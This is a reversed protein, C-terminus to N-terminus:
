HFVVNKLTRREDRTAVLTFTGIGMEEKHLYIGQASIMESRMLKGDASFVQLEAPEGYTKVEISDASVLPHARFDVDLVGTTALAAHVEPNYVRLIKDDNERVKGWGTIEKNSTCLFVSGDPAVLVDRLRGFQKWFANHEGLVEKGDESLPIVKLRQEKLVGMLLCNKWEPIATHNYYDLGAVAETPTWAWIPDRTGASDCFAREEETDCYGEVGPWGYNAFKEILNLEDNTTAGHESSYLLGHPGFCMGQPNRHGYSWVPSDELPNDKPFTGDINMRLVKGNKATVDQPFALRTYADGVCIFFTDDGDFVIRSGNHSSNAGLEMLELQDGLSDGDEFWTFREIRSIFKHFTYHVFVYPTEPFNPHLAISHLGSNEPSQFTEDVWHIQDVVGTQPNLRNINGDRETFWIHGTSSWSMDWPIKLDNCIVEVELYDPVYYTSDKQSLGLLSCSIAALFCYISKVNM